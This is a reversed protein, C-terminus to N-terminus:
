EGNKPGKEKMREKLYKERREDNKALELLFHEETMTEYSDPNRVLSIERFETIFLPHNEPNNSRKFAIVKM